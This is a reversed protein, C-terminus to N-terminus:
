FPVSDHTGHDTGREAQAGVQMTRSNFPRRVERGDDLGVVLVRLAGRQIVDIVKGDGLNSISIRQGIEVRGERSPAENPDVLQMWGRDFWYGTVKAFPNQIPHVVARVPDDAHEVVYLWFREGLDRAAQFQRPTLAVGQRTWPGSIGKVEISRDSGNKPDLSDVVPERSEIDFGPHTQGRPTPKRGHVEEFGCVVSVAQKGLEINRHRDEESEQTPATIGDSPLSGSVYTVMREKKRDGRRRRARDPRMRLPAADEGHPERARDDRATNEPSRATLEAADDTTAERQGTEERRVGIPGAPGQQAPVSGISPAGRERQGLRADQDAGEEREPEHPTEASPFAPRDVAGDKSSPRQERGATRGGGPQVSTTRVEGGKETVVGEDPPLRDASEYESAAQSELESPEPQDDAEPGDTSSAEAGDTYAPETEEPWSAPEAEQEDDLPKVRLQTLTREIESPECDLIVVMRSLDHLAHDGLTANVMEALYYCILKGADGALYFTTKSPNVYKNLTGSGVLSRTGDRDFYLDTLIERVVVVNAHALGQLISPGSSGHDCVVLRALGCRFEASRLTNQLHAARANAACDDVERWTGRPEETIARSLRQVWSLNAIASPLNLHLLSVNAETLREEFWPADGFYVSEPASLQCDRNLLPFRPEPGTHKAVERALRRYLEILQEVARAPVPESGFEALLEGLYTLYDDLEPRKRLGLREYAQRFPPKQGFNVRRGGFFPVPVQFAHEPKWLRNGHWLCPQKAYRESLLGNETESATLVSPGAGLYRYVEHFSTEFADRTPRPLGPANWLDLLRDFHALVVEPAVKTPFGLDERLRANERPMPFIPRQSAVLNAQRPLFLEDPRYLRDEPVIAGPWRRLNRPRREAPLWSRSKLTEALTEGELDEVPHGRMEEWHAELYDFVMMLPRLVRATDTGNAEEILRDVCALLDQPRTRDAMGLESFYTLWREEGRAYFTMDPFAAAGGLLGRIFQSAPHYVARAARLGGDECRVLDAAAVAERLKAPNRGDREMESEALQLHDRLWALAALEKAPLLEAYAPLLYDEIFTYRKLASVSLFVLLERWAGGDGGWLFTLQEGAEPPQFEAPLHVDRELSVLRGSASPFIPLRRLREKQSETYGDSTARWEPRALFDLLPAYIERSYQPFDAAPLVALTDVLDPGTVPWVFGCPCAADFAALAAELAAPATVLPVKFAQLAGNLLESAPDRVLLPTNAFGPCCLRREQNPVLPLAQLATLDPQFGARVASTLYEYVVKLWGANLFAAPELDPHLSHAVSKPLLDQLRCLMDAPSMWVVGAPPAHGLRTALAYAEDIFWGARGAFIARESPCALYVPVQSTPGFTRLVGDAMLALPLGGLDRPEDSLCFRLLIELWARQRLCPLPAASPRVALPQQQRLLQRLQAPKFVNLAVGAKRFGGTVTAKLVPNPITVGQAVLPDSLEKWEAPLVSVATILTWRDKGTARIVPRTAMYRYVEPALTEFPKPPTRRAEPWLDYYLQPKQEGLDRALDYILQAYAQAVVHQILLQNWKVRVRASGTQGSDTTLAHRSSDLDFFGNLHVPFGTELPLPLLCYAKGALRVLTRNADGSRAIRATAGGLPVAKVDREQLEGVARAIEGEADLALCAVVRWSSTEEHTSDSDLWRSEFKHVYSVLLPNYGTLRQVVAVTDGRLVALVSERAARVADVNATRVSLLERCEASGALIETVRLEEVNKVFLLLEERVALLQQLLERWNAEMFPRPSIESEQAQEPTRLPLRFATGPFNAQGPELGVVTFPALLDPYAKWCASLSWSRGPTTHTAGPVTKTHPDFIAFRDGTIFSPWDTVNYVTNFGKGFQGTKEASRVKGSQYIEQIRHFDDESFVADNMFLLAPGQLKAMTSAPLSAAPHSRWDILVQLSRAGADDADDANQLLEKIIGIGEPYDRILEKIQHTLSPLRGFSAGESDNSPLSEVM